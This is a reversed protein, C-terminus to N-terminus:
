YLAAALRPRQAQTLPDDEGLEHFLGVAVKRALDRVEGTGSGV